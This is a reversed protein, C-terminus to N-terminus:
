GEAKAELLDSRLQALMAPLPILDKVTPGRRVSTTIIFFYGDPARFDM